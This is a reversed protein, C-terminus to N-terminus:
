IVVKKMTKEALYFTLNWIKLINQDPFSCHLCHAWHKIGVRKYHYAIPHIHTSMIFTHLQSIINAPTRECHKNAPKNLQCGVPSSTVQPMQQGRGLKQGEAGEKIQAWSRSSVCVCVCVCLSLGTWNPGTSFFLLHPTLFILTCTTITM